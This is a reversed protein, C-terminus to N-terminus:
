GFHHVQGVEPLHDVYFMTVATVQSFVMSFPFRTWRGLIEEIPQILAFSLVHFNLFARSLPKFLHLDSIQSPFLPPIILDDHAVVPLQTPSFITHPDIYALVM